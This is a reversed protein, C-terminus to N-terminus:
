ISPQTIEEHTIIKKVPIEPINLRRDEWYSYITDPRYYMYTKKRLSDFRENGGRFSTYKDSQFIHEHGNLIVFFANLATILKRM